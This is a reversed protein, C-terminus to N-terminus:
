FFPDLLAAMTAIDIQGPATQQGFSAFTLKAAARGDSRPIVCAVRSVLGETGMCFSVVDRGTASLRDIVRFPIANDVAKRATFVVKFVIHDREPPHQAVAQVLLDCMADVEAAPPTSEFDHLSLILGVGHQKCAQLAADLLSADNVLEVDVLSPKTEIIRLLLAEHSALDRPVYNGGQAKAKVRCTCISELNAAQCTEILMKLDLAEVNRAYDLRLEVYSAPGEGVKKIDTALGGSSIYKETVPLAAAIPLKKM